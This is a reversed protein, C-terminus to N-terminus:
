CQTTTQSVFLMVTLTQREARARNGHGAFDSSHRSQVKRVIGEVEDLMGNRTNIIVQSTVAPRGAVPCVNHKHLSLRKHTYPHAYQHMCLEQM